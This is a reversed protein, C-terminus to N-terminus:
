DPYQPIYSSDDVVTLSFSTNCHEYTEADLREWVSKMIQLVGKAAAMLTLKLTPIDLASCGRIDLNITNGETSNSGLKLYVLNTCDRFLQGQGSDTDSGSYFRLDELNVDTLNKLGNFNITLYLYSRKHYYWHIHPTKTLKTCGSFDFGIGSIGPSTEDVHDTYYLHVNSLDTFESCKEFPNMHKADWLDIKDSTNMYRDSDIYINQAPMSTFKSGYMDFYRYTINNQDQVIYPFARNVTTVSDGFKINCFEVRDLGQINSFTYGDNITCDNFQGYGQTRPSSISGNLFNYNVPANFICGQYIYSDDCINNPIQQVPLNEIFTNNAFASRLSTIYSEKNNFNVRIKEFGGNYNFTAYSPHSYKDGNICVFAESLDVKNLFDFDINLITNPIAYRGGSRDTEQCGAWEAFHSLDIVDNSNIDSDTLDLQITTIKDSGSEAYGTISSEALFGSFNRIKKLTSGIFINNLNVIARPLIAFKFCDTFEELSEMKFKLNDTLVGYSYFKDINKINPINIPLTNDTGEGVYIKNNYFLMDAEVLKDLTDGYGFYHDLLTDEDYADVLHCELIQSSNRKPYNTDNNTGRKFARNAAVLNTTNFGEVKTVNYQSFLFDNIHQLRHGDIIHPVTTIEKIKYLNGGKYIDIVAPRGQTINMEWATYGTKLKNAWCKNGDTRNYPDNGICGYQNLLYVYKNGKLTSYEITIAAKKSPDSSMTYTDSGALGVYYTGDTLYITGDGNDEITLEYPQSILIVGEESLGMYLDRNYVKFTVARIEGPDIIKEYDHWEWGSYGWVIELFFTKRINRNTYDDENFTGIYAGDAYYTIDGEVVFDNIDDFKYDPPTNKHYMNSLRRSIRYNDPREQPYAVDSWNVEEFNPYAANFEAETDFLSIYKHKIEPKEIQIAM